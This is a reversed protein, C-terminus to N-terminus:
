LTFHSFCYYSLIVWQIVTHSCAASCPPLNCQLFYNNCSYTESISALFVKYYVFLISKFRGLVTSVGWVIFLVNYIQPQDHKSTNPPVHINRWRTGDVHAGISPFYVLDLPVPFLLIPVTTICIQHKLSFYPKESCELPLPSQKVWLCCVM